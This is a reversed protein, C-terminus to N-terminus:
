EDVPEFNLTVLYAIVDARDKPDKVGQFMSRSGNVVHRPDALFPDLTPQDWVVNARLLADSYMYGQVTGSKRGLLHWLSPGIKNVGIETSHCVLCKEFVVRGAVPDGGAQAPGCWMVAALVAAAEGRRRM